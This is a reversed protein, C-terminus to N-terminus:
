QHFEIKVLWKITSKKLEKGQQKKSEENIKKQMEAINSKYRKITDITTKGRLEEGCLPCRNNKLLERKLKSGCKPCGIYEVKFSQVCHANEYTTLKEMEKRLREQLALLTKSPAIVPYERFKVALQDYWGRDQQRIFELAEDYNACINDYWRIPKDLGSGGERWCAQKVYHNLDAEVQKRDVNERYVRHQIEHGM